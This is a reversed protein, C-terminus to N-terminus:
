EMPEQNPMAEVVRVATRLAGLADAAAVQPPERTQVARVFDRLQGLLADARDVELHETRVEGAEASDGRPDLHV